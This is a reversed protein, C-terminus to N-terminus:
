NYDNRKWHGGHQSAGDLGDGGARVSRRAVVLM